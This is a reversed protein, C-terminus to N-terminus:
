DGSAPVETAITKHEIKLTRVLQYEGVLVTEDDFASVDEYAVLYPGDRDPNEMTAFIRKPPNLSSKKRKPM